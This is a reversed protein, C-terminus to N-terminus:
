LKESLKKWNEEKTNDPSFYGKTGSVFTNVGIESLPEIDDFGVRGDVEIEFNLGKEKRIKALEKIKDDIFSYVGQGALHAYGPDIRMVLVFDCLEILHILSSVTTEPSIAIGAKIGHSKIEKIIINPRPEFETHFCLRDIGAECLLKVFPLNDAAMLHADFAMNTHRRVQKVTDVGIPMDPSFIGDIIDVHLMDCGLGELEKVEKELNCLDMCILSPSITKKM